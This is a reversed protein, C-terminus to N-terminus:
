VRRHTKKAAHRKHKKAFKTQHMAARPTKAHQAKAHAGKKVAHVSKEHTPTPARDPGAALVSLSGFAFASAVVAALLKKM